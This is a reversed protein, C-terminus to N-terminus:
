RTMWVLSRTLPVAAGVRLRVFYVGAGVPTGDDRRGNWTATYAGPPLKGSALKRLRRGAVDYVGLQVSTLDGGTGGVVFSVIGTEFAPNPFPAALSTVLPPDEVGIIDQGPSRVSCDAYGLNGTSGGSTNFDFGDAPGAGSPVRVLCQDPFYFPTQTWGMQDLRVLNQDYLYLVTEYALEFSFTAAHGQPLINTTGAELPVSGGADYFPEEQDVNGVFWGGIDVPTSLPNFLEIDDVGTTGYAYVGNIRVSSGLAPPEVSGENTENPTPSGINFDEASSGSDLGDGTRQTSTSLTDPEDQSAQAAGFPGAKQFVPPRPYGPPFIIPASIPAGGQNGYAVSDQVMHFNDFLVLVGGADPLFGEDPEQTTGFVVTAPPVSKFLPCGLPDVYTVLLNDFAAQNDGFGGFTLRTISPYEFCITGPVGPVSLAEGEVSDGLAAVRLFGYDEAGLPMIDICVRHAPQCLEVQITGDLNESFAAGGPGSCVSVVNPPSGFGESYDWNANAYVPGGSNCPEPNTLAPLTTLTMGNALYANGVEAGDAIEAGYPDTDFGVLFTNPPQPEDAVDFGGGTIEGGLPLRSSDPLEVYWGALDVPEEQPSFVELYESEGPRPKVLFENILVIGQERAASLGPLPGEIHGIALSFGQRMGVTYRHEGPIGPALHTYFSFTGSGEGPLQCDTDLQEFKAFAIQDFHPFWPLDKCFYEGGFAADCPVGQDDGPATGAPDGFVVTNAECTETLGGMRVYFHSSHQGGYRLDWTLHLTYKYLGAFGPDATIEVESTGHITNGAAAPAAALALGGIALAFLYSRLGYV